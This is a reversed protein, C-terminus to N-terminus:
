VLCRSPDKCDVFPKWIVVGANAVMVDLSGLEEVCKAVMEEVEAEKSVDGPLVTSKRGCKEILQKVEELQSAKSAIDNVAVDLGEAALRLAIGRGIGQAAGTVLAVRSTSM